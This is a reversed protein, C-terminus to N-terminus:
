MLADSLEKLLILRSALAQNFRRQEMLKNMPAIEYRLVSQVTSLQRSGFITTAFDSTAIRLCSGTQFFDSLCEFDFGVSSIDVGGVHISGGIGTSRAPRLPRKVGDAGPRRSTGTATRLVCSGRGTCGVAAVVSAIRARELVQDITASRTQTTVKATGFGSVM